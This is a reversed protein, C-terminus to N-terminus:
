LKVRYKDVQAWDIEVGSGPGEPLHLCGNQIVLPTKILSASFNEDYFAIECPLSIQKFAAALHVCNATGLDSELQTSIQCPLHASEALHVIQTSLTFGTRPLKIGM